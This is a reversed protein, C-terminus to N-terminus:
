KERDILLQLMQKIDSMENKLSEVDNALRKANEKQRMIMDHKKLAGKNVNLLSNTNMDRVLSDNDKVKVLM